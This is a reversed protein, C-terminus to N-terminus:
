PRVFVRSACQDSIKKLIREIAAEGLSVNFRNDDSLISLRERQYQAKWMSPVIVNLLCLLAFVM